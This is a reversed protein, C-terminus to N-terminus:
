WIPQGTSSKTRGSDRFTFSQRTLSSSFVEPSDNAFASHGEHLDHGLHDTMTPILHWLDIRPRIFVNGAAIRSLSSHHVPDFVSLTDRGDVPSDNFCM